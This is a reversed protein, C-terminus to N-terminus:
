RDGICLEISTTNQVIKFNLYGKSITKYIEYLVDVRESIVNLQIGMYVNVYMTGVPLNNGIYFLYDERYKLWKRQSDRLTIFEDVPLIKKLLNYYKNLLVDYEEIGRNVSNSMGSTSYGYPNGNGMPSEMLSDILFDIYKIEKSYISDLHSVDKTEFPGDSGFGFIPTMLLLIFLIRKM